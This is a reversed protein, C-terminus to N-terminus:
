AKMCFNNCGKMKMKRKKQASEENTQDANKLSKHSTVIEELFDVRQDLADCLLKKKDSSIFKAVQLIESFEDGIGKLKSLDLWSFDKVLALQEIHYNCFSRSKLYVDRPKIGEDWSTNVWLSNGNDFLPATDPWELSEVDRIIGFNNWHRDANAILFDVAIM